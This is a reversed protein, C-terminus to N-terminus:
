NLEIRELLTDVLKKSSTYMEEIEAKAITGCGTCYPVRLIDEVQIEMIPIYCNLIRGAFKAKGVASIMLAEFIAITTASWLIPTNYVTKKWDSNATAEMFRRYAPRDEMRALIREEMCEFCGTEPPKITFVSVFPGDLLGMSLPISKEILARNLNRMFTVNIRSVSGVVCSYPELFVCIDELNKTSSVGDFCTTVDAHLIDRYEEQTMIHVPLELASFLEGAQREIVENDTFFLVPRLMVTNAVGYAEYSGSLLDTLLQSVASREEDVLYTAMKLADFVGEINEKEEQSLGSKAFEEDLDITRFAGLESFVRLMFTRVEESEATLSLVAEEYNWIGRRVRIEDTGNSYVASSDSLVFKKAM